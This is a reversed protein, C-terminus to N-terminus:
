SRGTGSAHAHVRAPSKQPPTQQSVQKIADALSPGKSLDEVGLHIACIKEAFLGAELTVHSALEHYYHQMGNM